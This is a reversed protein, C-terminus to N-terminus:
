IHSRSQSFNCKQGFVLFQNIQMLFLVFSARELSAITASSTDETKAGYVSIHLIQLM